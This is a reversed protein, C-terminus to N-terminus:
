RGTFLAAVAWLAAALVTTEDGTTSHGDVSSADASAMEPRRSDYPFPYNRKM